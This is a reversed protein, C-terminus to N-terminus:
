FVSEGNHSAAITGNKVTLHSTKDDFAFFDSTEGAVFAESTSLTHGNLDLVTDVNVYLQSSEAYDTHLKLLSEKQELADSLSAYAAEGEDIMGNDNADAWAVVAAPDISESGSEQQLPEEAYAQVAAAPLLSMVMALALLVSCFVNKKRKM